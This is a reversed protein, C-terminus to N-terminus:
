FLSQFRSAVAQVSSSRNLRLAADVLVLISVLRLSLSHRNPRTTAPRCGSFCPNFRCCPHAVAHTIHSTAPRCGSFCPNFCIELPIRLIDKRTAPRCGSFCPNFCSQPIHDTKWWQLRLAADVLVLISVRSHISLKSRSQPRLAADVLVLISVGNSQNDNNKVEIDCPPM